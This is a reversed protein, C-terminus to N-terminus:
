HLGMFRPDNCDHPENIVFTFDTTVKKPRPRKKKTIFYGYAGPQIYPKITWGDCGVSMLSWVRRPNQKRVRQFEEGYSGFHDFYTGDWGANARYPNQYPLWKFQWTDFPKDKTEEDTYVYTIM